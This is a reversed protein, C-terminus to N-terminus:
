ESESELDVILKKLNEFTINPESYIENILDLASKEKSYKTTHILIQNKFSDFDIIEKGGTQISYSFFSM